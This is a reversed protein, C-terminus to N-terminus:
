YRILMQSCGAVIHSIDEANNICLRCKNNCNPNKEIDRDRKNKLFKTPFEQDHVVSIYNEVESTLYKDKKRANSLKQWDTPWGYNKKWLLYANSKIHVKRKTSIFRTLCSYIGHKYTSIACRKVQPLLFIM